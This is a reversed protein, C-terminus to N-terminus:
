FAHLTHKKVLTQNIYELPITKFNVFKSRDPSFHSSVGCDIILDTLQLVGFAKHNDGSTIILAPTAEDNSLNFNKPGWVIYM